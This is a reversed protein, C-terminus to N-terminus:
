GQVAMRERMEWRKKVEGHWSGRLREENMVRQMLEPHLKEIPSYRARVVELVSVGTGRREELLIADGPRVVGPKVVSLYWGTFGQEEVWVALMKEELFAALTACPGRPQVVEVLAEGVRFVDGIWVSQEVLGTTTFNEGFAPRPLARGLRQEWYPYHEDAYVCIAKYEGGHHDRDVQTDGALGNTGAM